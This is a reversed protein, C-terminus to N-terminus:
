KIDEKEKEISKIWGETLKKNSKWKCGTEEKQKEKKSMRLKREYKRWTKTTEDRNRAKKRM